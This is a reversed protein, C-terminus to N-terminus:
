MTEPVTTSAAASGFASQIVREYDEFTNQRTLTGVMEADRGVLRRFPGDPNDVADLIANVVEQPDPPNGADVTSDRWSFFREYDGRQPHDAAFGASVTINEGFGTSFAGPEILMVAVGSGALELRMVETLGEVAHKSAVYAGEFPVGILGAASSINIITGNGRELMLPVVARVMRVVGFVNTDFQRLLDEDRLDAVPGRVAFGASNILVDVGGAAAIEALGRDISAQDTVDLIHASLSLGAAAEELARAADPKRVTAFVRDGRRALALATMAGFGSSCGTILVTTM